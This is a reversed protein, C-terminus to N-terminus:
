AFIVEGAGAVDYLSKPDDNAKVQGDSQPEVLIMKFVPSDKTGVNVCPMCFSHHAVFDGVLGIAGGVGFKNVPDVFMTDMLGKARVAFHNCDGVEPVYLISGTGTMKFGELLYDRLCIDFKGDWMQESFKSKWGEMDAQFITALQQGTIQVSTERLKERLAVVEPLARIVESINVNSM